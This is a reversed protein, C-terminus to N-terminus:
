YKRQVGWGAFQDLRRRHCFWCGSRLGSRVPFCAFTDVPSEDITASSGDSDLSQSITSIRKFNGGDGAALITVAVLPSNQGLGYTMSSDSKVGSNAQSFHNHVKASQVCNSEVQKQSQAPRILSNRSNLRRIPLMEGLMKGIREAADPQRLGILRHSRNMETQQIM